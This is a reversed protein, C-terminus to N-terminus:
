VSPVASWVIIVGGFEPKGGERRVEKQDPRLNECGCALLGFWLRRSSIQPNGPVLICFFSEPTSKLPELLLRPRTTAIQIPIKLGSRM